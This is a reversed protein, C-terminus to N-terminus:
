RPRPTFTRSAASKSSRAARDRRARLENIGLEIGEQTYGDFRHPKVSHVAFGIEHWRELVKTIAGTSPPSDPNIARAIEACTLQFTDPMLGITWEDCVLKVQHELEGPRRFGSMGPEASRTQLDPKPTLGMERIKDGLYDTESTASKVVGAVYDPNPPLLKFEIAKRLKKQRPTLEGAEAKKAEIQSATVQTPKARTDTWTPDNWPMRFEPASVVGDDDAKWWKGTEPWIRERGVSEYMETITEHCICKCVHEFAMAFPPAEQWRGRCFALPQGRHNRHKEGEHLGNLCFGTIPWRTPLTSAGM